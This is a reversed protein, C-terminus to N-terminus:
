ISWRVSIPGQNNVGNCIKGLMASKPGAATAVSQKYMWHKRILTFVTFNGSFDILRRSITVEPLCYLCVLGTLKYGCTEAWM